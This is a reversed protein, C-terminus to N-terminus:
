RGDAEVRAISAELASSGLDSPSRDNRVEDFAVSSGHLVPVRPDLADRPDLSVSDSKPMLITRSATCHM